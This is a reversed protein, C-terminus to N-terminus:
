SKSHVIMENLFQLGGDAVSRGIAPDGRQPLYRIEEEILSAAETQRLDFNEVTQKKTKDAIAVDVHKHLEAPF